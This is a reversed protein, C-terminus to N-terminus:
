SRHGHLGDVVRTWGHLTAVVVAVTGAVAAPTALIRGAHAVVNGLRHFARFLRLGRSGGFIGWWDRGLIRAAVTVDLFTTLKELLSGTDQLYSQQLALLFALMSLASLSKSM